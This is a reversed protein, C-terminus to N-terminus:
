TVVRFRLHTVGPAEIVHTRELAIHATSLHDYLRIGSGLLVPVLHLQIEDLLGANLAQQAITAGGAICVDKDHAAAHAHHLASAIGDAVFIFQTDGKARRHPVTHSLVVHPVKYPTDVYGDYKDGADYARRGIVIAGTTRLLEDIVMSSGASPAFYWNHLGADDDNPGAIFGDLSMAMDLFVNGM